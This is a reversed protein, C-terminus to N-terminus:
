AGKKSPMARPMIAGDKGDPWTAGEAIWRRILEMESKAIRHGTAPMAKPEKPPLTLVIYLLSKEPEKPMIVPGGKRKRMMLERSQLNLQGFLSESHHCEVCRDALIPKIQNVFDVPPEAASSPQILVGMVLGTLCFFLKM